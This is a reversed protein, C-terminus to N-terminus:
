QMCKNYIYTKHIDTIYKHMVGHRKKSISEWYKKVISYNRKYKTKKIISSM